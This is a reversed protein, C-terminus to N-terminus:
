VGEMGQGGTGKWVGEMVQGGGGEERDASM